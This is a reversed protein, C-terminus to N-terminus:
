YDIDYEKVKRYLTRESIKLLKAAKRKNGRTFNLANLIAEKEVQELPKVEEINMERGIPYNSSRSKNALQKLEILDKKIEILAGIIMDRDISESSKYIPIPLNRNDGPDHDSLLPLFFDIDIEGNKNLALASEITNKLERVNGPWSYNVLLDVARNTLRPEPINNKNSYERLFHYILVTVDERRARLPPINLTVAKLRFFLDKRFRRSDVENQLDKNSAAIIRVDVKTVTESGIRM